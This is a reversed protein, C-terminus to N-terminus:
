FANTHGVAQSKRQTEVLARLNALTQEVDRVLADRVSDLTHKHLLPTPIACDASLTVHTEGDLPELAWAAACLLGGTTKITVSRAPTDVMVTAIGDFHVNLLRRTWHYRWDHAGARQVDDIEADGPLLKPLYGPQSILPFVHEPSAAVTVSRVIYEM